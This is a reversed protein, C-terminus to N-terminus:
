RVLGMINIAKPETICYERCLACGTCLEPNISPRELQWELAGDVKCASACAGCEPGQYPLCLETNIIAKALKPFNIKEHTDITDSDNIENEIKPLSLANTECATVCPWDECLHCGSNILDLAPTQMVDAGNKASLPFIIKYSCADICDNCRSCSLLFELETKAFPPRIWHLARASIKEDVKEVAKEAARSIGRRFFERRDM